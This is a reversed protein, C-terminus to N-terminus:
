KAQKELRSQFMEFTKIFVFDLKVCALLIFILYHLIIKQILRFYYIITSSLATLFIINMNRLFGLFISGAGSTTKIPPSIQLLFM